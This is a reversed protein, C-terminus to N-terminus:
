ASLSRRGSSESEFGALVAWAEGDEAVDAAAKDLLSAYLPSGLRACGAAQFRLRDALVERPAPM